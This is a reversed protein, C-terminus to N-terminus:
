PLPDDWFVKLAKLNTKWDDSRLIAQTVHMGICLWNFIFLSRTLLREVSALNYLQLLGSPLVDM